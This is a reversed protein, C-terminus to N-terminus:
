DMPEEKARVSGEGLGVGVEGGHMQLDRLTFESFERGSRTRRTPTAPTQVVPSASRSAGGTGRRSRGSNAVSQSRAMGRVVASAMERGPQVATAASSGRRFPARPAPMRIAPSSPLDAESPDFEDSDNDDMHMDDADSEIAEDETEDPDGVPSSVMAGVLGPPPSAWRGRQTVLRAPTIPVVNDQGLGLAQSEPLQALMARMLARRQADDRTHRIATEARQPSTHASRYPHAPPYRTGTRVPTSPTQMFSNRNLTPATTSPATNIDTTGTAIAPTTIQAPPTNPPGASPTNPPMTPRVSQPVAASESAMTTAPANPSLMVTDAESERPSTQVPPDTPLRTPVAPNLLSSDMTIQCPSSPIEPMQERNELPKRLTPPSPGFSRPPRYDHAPASRPRSIVSEAPSTSRAGDGTPHEADSVASEPQRNETTPIAPSSMIQDQAPVYQATAGIADSASALLALSRESEDIEDNLMAERPDVVVPPVNARSERRTAEASALLRLRLENEDSGVHPSDIAGPPVNARSERRTAEHQRRGSEDTAPLASGQPAGDSTVLIGSGRRLGSWKVNAEAMLRGSSPAQAYTTSPSFWLGPSVALAYGGERPVALLERGDGIEFHEPRTATQGTVRHTAQNNGARVLNRPRVNPETSPPQTHAQQQVYMNHSQAAQFQEWTMTVMQGDPTQMSLLSGPPPAFPMHPPMNPPYQMPGPRRNFQPPPPPPRPGWYPGNSHNPGLAQQNMGPHCSQQQPQVSQQRSKQARRANSPRGRPAPQHPALWGVQPQAQTPPPPEFGPLSPASSYMGRPSNTGLPPTYAQPHLNPQPRRYGPPLQSPPQLQPQPQAKPPVTKKRAVEPLDPSPQAATLDLQPPRARSANSPARPQTSFPQNGIAAEEWQQMKKLHDKNGIVNRRLTESPTSRDLPVSRPIDEQRPKKHTHRDSPSSSNSGVDSDSETRARKKSIEEDSEEEDDDEDEDDHILVMRVTVKETGPTGPALLSLPVEIQYDGKGQAAEREIFCQKFGLHRYEGQWRWKHEDEDIEAIGEANRRKAERTDNEERKLMQKMCPKCIQKVCATCKYIEDGKGKSKCEDCQITSTKKILYHTHLTANIKFHKPDEPPLNQSLFSTSATFSEHVKRQTEVSGVGNASPLPQQEPGPYHFDTGPVAQNNIGGSTAITSLQEHAPQPVSTQNHNINALGGLNVRARDAVSGIFNSRVDEDAEGTSSSRRTPPPSLDRPPSTLDSTDSWDEPLPRGGSRAAM